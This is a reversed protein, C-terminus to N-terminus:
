PLEAVLPDDGLNPRQPGSLGDAPDREGATREGVQQAIAEIDPLYRELTLNKRAFLAMRSRSKNSATRALQVFLDVAVFRYPRPGLSQQGAADEVIAAVAHARAM